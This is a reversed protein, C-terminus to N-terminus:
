SIELKPNISNLRATNYKISVIFYYNRINTRDVVKLTSEVYTKEFVPFLM